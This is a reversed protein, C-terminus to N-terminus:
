SAVRHDPLIPRLRQRNRTNGAYLPYHPRRYHYSPLSGSVLRRTGNTNASCYGGCFFFLLLLLCSIFYSRLRLLDRVVGSRSSLKGLSDELRALRARVTHDRGQGTVGDSVLADEVEEDGGGGGLYWQVKQLRAQLSDLTALATQPTTESM